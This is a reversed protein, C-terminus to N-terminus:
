DAKEKDGYFVDAADKSPSQLAMQTVQLSLSRNKSTQTEYQSVESVEVIAILELKQGVKPIGKLALKELVTEDCRLNLGYPYAPSDLSPSCAETKEKKEAKTIKMDKLKM